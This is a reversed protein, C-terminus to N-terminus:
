AEVEIADPIVARVLTGAGDPNTGVWLHGGLREVRDRMSRLGLGTGQEPVLGRGDDGVELTLAGPEDPDPGLRIRVSGAGAHKVVNHLAERVVHYVALDVQPSTALRAAPLEPRIRLGEREAVTAVLRAIVRACGEEQLESPYLEFIVRRLDDLARDALEGIMAVQRRIEPLRDAGPLDRDGALARTIARTHLNISFLEQCASDHLGRALRHREEDTRRDVTEGALRAHQVAVSVQDALATLFTMDGADPVQGPRCYVNMAGVPEERWRLPVAVFADWELSRLHEHLPEWAPDALMLARRGPMIEPRGERMAQVSMFEAGRRRVQELTRGFGPWFSDAPAAGHLGLRSTAPDILLLQVAALDATRRAEECIATLTDALSDGHAVVAAATAFSVLRRYQRDQPAHPDATRQSM